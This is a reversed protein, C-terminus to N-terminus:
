IGANTTIKGSFAIPMNEVEDIQRYAEEIWQDWIHQMLVMKNTFYRYFTMRSAGSKQCIEEVSVRKLGHKLFLEEATEVIQQQKKSIPIDAKTKMEM